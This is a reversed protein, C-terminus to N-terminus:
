NNGTTSKPAADKQKQEEQQKMEELYKKDKVFNLLEVFQDKPRYGPLTGLSQGEATLFAFAPFGRVGFTQRTLDEESIKYGDIDLKRESDGIVKVSVFNDNMLKIVASDSFTEAEMKKCWGCWSTTFDVVVHKNEKKARQIGVDYTVWEIKAAAPTTPTTAAPKQTAKAQTTSKTATAPKQTATKQTTQTVVSAALLGAVALTMMFLKVTKM